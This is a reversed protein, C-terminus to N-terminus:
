FVVKWEINTLDDASFAQEIHLAFAFSETPLSMLKDFDMLSFEYDDRKMIANHGVMDTM